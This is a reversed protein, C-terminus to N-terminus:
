ASGPSGTTACEWTALPRPLPAAELGAVRGIWTPLPTPGFDNPTLASRGTRLAGHLAARGVGAASTVTYAAIRLPAIPAPM